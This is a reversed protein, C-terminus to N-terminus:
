CKARSVSLWPPAHPKSAPSARPSSTSPQWDRSASLLWPPAPARSPHMDPTYGEGLVDKDLDAADSSRRSSEYSTSKEDLPVDESGSKPRKGTSLWPPISSKVTSKSKGKGKSEAVQHHNPPAKKPAPQLRSGNIETLREQRKVAPSARRSREEDELCAEMKARLYSRHGGLEGADVWESRTVVMFGCGFADACKQKLIDEGIELLLQQPWQLDQIFSPSSVEIAVCEAQLIFDFGYREFQPNCGLEHLVELVQQQFPSPTGPKRVAAHKSLIGRFADGLGMVHVAQEFKGADVDDWDAGGAVTSELCHRLIEQLSPSLSVEAAALFWLVKLWLWRTIRRTELETALQTFRRRTESATAQATVLAWGIDAIDSETYKYWGDPGLVHEFLAVHRFGMSAFARLMRARRPIAWSMSMANNQVEEFLCVEAEDDAQRRENWSDDVYLKHRLCLESILAAFRSLLDDTLEKRCRRLVALAVDCLNWLITECLESMGCIINLLEKISLEPVLHQTRSWVNALIQLADEFSVISPDSKRWAGLTYSTSALDKTKWQEWYFADCRALQYMATEMVKRVDPDDRLEDVACGALANTLDWSSFSLFHRQLRVFLEKCLIRIGDWEKIWSLDFIINCLQRTELFRAQESIKVSMAWVLDKELEEDETPQPMCAMKHVAAAFNKLSWGVFDSNGHSTLFDLFDGRGNGCANNMCLQVMKEHESM